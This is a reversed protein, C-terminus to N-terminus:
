GRGADHRLRAEPVIPLPIGARESVPIVTNMM